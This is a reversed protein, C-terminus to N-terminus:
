VQPSFSFISIIFVIILSNFSDQRDMRIKALMAKRTETSSIGNGVQANLNGEPIKSITVRKQVLSKTPPTPTSGIEIPYGEEDYEVEKIEFEPDKDPTAKPNTPEANWFDDEKTTPTFSAEAEDVIKEMDADLAAPKQAAELDALKNAGEVDMPVNEVPKSVPTGYKNKDYPIKAMASAAGEKVVPKTPIAKATLDAKDLANEVVNNIENAVIAEPNKVKRILNLMGETGTAATKAGARIIKGAVVGGKAFKLDKIKAAYEPVKM